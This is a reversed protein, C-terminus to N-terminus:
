HPQETPKWGALRLWQWVEEKIEETTKPQGNPHRREMARLRMEVVTLLAVLRGKEEDDM